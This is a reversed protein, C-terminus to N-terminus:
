ARNAARKKSPRRLEALKDRLRRQIQKDSLGFDHPMLRMIEKNGAESDEAFCRAIFADLEAFREARKKPGRRRFDDLAAETIRLIRKIEAHFVQPSMQLLRQVEGVHALKADLYKMQSEACGIGKPKLKEIQDLSLGQWELLRLIWQERPEM